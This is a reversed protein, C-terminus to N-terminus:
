QTLLTYRGFIQPDHSRPWAEKEVFKSSTIGPTRVTGPYM